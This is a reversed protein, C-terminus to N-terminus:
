IHVKRNNKYYDVGRELEDIREELDNIDRDRHAQIVSQNLELRHIRKRYGKFIARIKVKDM